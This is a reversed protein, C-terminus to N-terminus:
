NLPRRYQQVSNVNRNQSQRVDRSRRDNGNQYSQRSNWQGRPQFPARQRFRPQSSQPRNNWNSHPQNRWYGEYNANPCSNDSNYWNPNYTPQANWPSFERNSRSRQLAELEKRLKDVTLSMKEIESATHRVQIANSLSSQSGTKAHVQIEDAMAALEDLNDCAVKSALIVRIHDPMNEIFVSKLFRSAFQDQRGPVENMLFRLEQLYESPKISADYRTNRLSKM